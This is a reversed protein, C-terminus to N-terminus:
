VSHLFNSVALMLERTGRCASASIKAVHRLPPLVSIIRDCLADVEDAPLLDIKNLVLWHERQALEPQYRTLEDIITRANEIPDSGDIPYVDVVHLLLRTRAIHRLFQFGLGLGESAGRILGPIDAVVFSRDEDIRVVGLQPTLTTFPYDAVKPRASSVARILTSKGANPLGVLGVDALLKLELRLSREEGPTGRTTQRPARNTSSKFRANGLGHFGGQAVCLLQGDVALDGLCEQTDVDYIVTGVPVLITLSDGKKGTKEKGSGPEGKQARFIRKYRFNILTNLGETAKFFVHGGDGGDGGSPGGRPVYKERHFAMCGDGGDGAKVKITAEDVFKM